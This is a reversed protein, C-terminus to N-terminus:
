IRERIDACGLKIDSIGIQFTKKKKRQWRELGVMGHWVLGVFYFLAIREIPGM